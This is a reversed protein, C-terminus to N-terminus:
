YSDIIVVSEYTFITNPFVVCAVMAAAHKTIAIKGNVRDWQCKTIIAISVTIERAFIAAFDVIVLVAFIDIVTAIAVIAGIVM